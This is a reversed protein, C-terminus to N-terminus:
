TKLFMANTGRLKEVNNIDYHIESREADEPWWVALKLSFRMNCIMKTMTKVILKSECTIFSDDYNYTQCNTWGVLSDSFLKVQLFLEFVFLINQQFIRFETEIKFM